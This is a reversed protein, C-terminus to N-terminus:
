DEEGYEAVINDRAKEFTEDMGKSEYAAAHEGRRRDATPLVAEEINVDLGADQLGKLASYHRSGYQQDYVGMDPVVAYIEENLAQKGVLFGTLYAAPLNGTNEDWGFEELQKSFSSVVTEDGDPSYAVIQVQAHKNSIRIVARHQGSKLLELRKQYDTRGERRRRLHLDYNPGDAMTIM